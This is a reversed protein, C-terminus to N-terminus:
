TRRSSLGSVDCAFYTSKPYFVLAKLLANATFAPSQENMRVHKHHNGTFSRRNQLYSRKEVNRWSCPSPRLKGWSRPSKLARRCLYCQDASPSLHPKCHNGLPPIAKEKTRGARLNPLVCNSKKNLCLVQSRGTDFIPVIQWRM